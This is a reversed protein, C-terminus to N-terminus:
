TISGSLGNKRVNEEAKKALGSAEIAYVHEAGARAAIVAILAVRWTFESSLIGTGCGVDMVVKGRVAQQIYRGYSVTRTTDKLMVEHIDKPTLDDYVASGGNGAYSEFYHTDDDREVPVDEADVMSQLRAIALRAHELQVNVDPEEAVDEEEEEELDYEAILM